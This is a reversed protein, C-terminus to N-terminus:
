FYSVVFMQDDDSQISFIKDKNEVSQHVQSSNLFLEQFLCSNKFQEIINTSLSNLFM